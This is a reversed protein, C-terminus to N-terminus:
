KLSNKFNDELARKKLICNRFNRINIVLCIFGSLIVPSLIWYEKDQSIMVAVPLLITIANLTIVFVFSRKM